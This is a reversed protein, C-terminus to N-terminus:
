MDERVSTEIHYRWFSKLADVNKISTRPPEQARIKTWYTDWDRISSGFSFIHHGTIVLGRDRAARAERGATFPEDFAANDMLRGELTNMKLRLMTELFAGYNEPARQQWPSFLDRDNPFWARWKVYPEDFIMRTDLPVEISSLTEYEWSAWFWLPPINLFERSFEYIAYITGRMDTGQLVVQPVGDIRRVSLLHAESGLLSADRFEAMATGTGSIVIASKGAADALSNVIPSPAGTVKELDRQLDEVARHVPGPEAPDVVIPVGPELVVTKDTTDTCGCAIIALMTVTCVLLRHIVRTKGSM